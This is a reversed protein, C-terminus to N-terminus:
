PMWPDCEKLEELKYLETRDEFEEQAEAGRYVTFTPFEDDGSPWHDFTIAWWVSNGDATTPEDVHSHFFLQRNNSTKGSSGRKYHRIRPQPRVSGLHHDFLKERQNNDLWYEIRSPRENRCHWFHAEKFRDENLECVLEVPKELWSDRALFDGFVVNQTKKEVPLIYPIKFTVQSSGQCCHRLLKKLDNLVKPQLVRTKRSNDKLKKEYTEWTMGNKSAKVPYLDSSYILIDPKWGRGKKEWAKEEDLKKRPVSSDDVSSKSITPPKGSVRFNFGKVTAVYPADSDLERSLYEVLRMVQDKADGDIKFARKAVENIWAEDVYLVHNIGYYNIVFVIKEVAEPNECFAKPTIFISQILSLKLKGNM